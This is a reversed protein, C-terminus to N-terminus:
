AFFYKGPEWHVLVPNSTSFSSMAVFSKVLAAATEELYRHHLLVQQKHKGTM